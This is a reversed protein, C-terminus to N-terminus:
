ECYRKETSKSKNISLLNQCAKWMFMQVTNSLKLQWITRWIGSGSLRNSSEGKQSDHSEKELYYDSRVSYEGITTGRWILADKQYSCSMPLTTIIKAKDM